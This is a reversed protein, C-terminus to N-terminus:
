FILSGYMFKTVSSLLTAAETSSYQISCSQCEPVMYLVEQFWLAFFVICTYSFRISQLILCKQLPTSKGAFGDIIEDDSIRDIVDKECALIMLSSFWDDLM